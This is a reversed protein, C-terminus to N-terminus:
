KCKNIKLVNLNATSNDINAYLSTQTPTQPRTIGKNRCDQQQITKPINEESGFCHQQM